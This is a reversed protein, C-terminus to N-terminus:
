SSCHPLRAMPKASSKKEKARVKSQSVPPEDHGAVSMCAKKGNSGANDVGDDMSDVNEKKGDSGSNDVGNDTSDVNEAGGERPSSRLQPTSQEQATKSPRSCSGRNHSRRSPRLVVRITKTESKLGDM